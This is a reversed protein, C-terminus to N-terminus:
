CAKLMRPHSLMVWRINCHAATLVWKEMLWFAEVSSSVRTSWTPWGPGPCWPQEAASLWGLSGVPKGVEASTEPELVHFPDVVPFTCKELTIEMSNADIKEFIFSVSQAPTSWCWVLLLSTRLLYMWLNWFLGRTPNVHRHQLTPLM